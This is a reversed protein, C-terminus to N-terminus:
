AVSFFRQRLLIEIFLDAGVIENGLDVIWATTILQELTGVGSGAARDVGEDLEFARRMPQQLSYQNRAIEKYRRWTDDKIKFRGQQARPKIVDLRRDPCNKSSVSISISLTAASSKIAAILM